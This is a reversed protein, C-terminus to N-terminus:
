AHIIGSAFLLPIRASCRYLDMKWICCGVGEGAPFGSFLTVKRSAECNWAPRNERMEVAKEQVWYLEEDCRM